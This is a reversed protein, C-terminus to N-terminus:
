ANEIREGELRTRLHDNEQQLHDARSQLEVMQKAQEEQKAEMDQRWYLFQDEISQNTLNSTMIVFDSPGTQQNPVLLAELSPLDSSLPHLWARAFRQHAKKSPPEWLLCWNHDKSNKSDSSRRLMLKSAHVQLVFLFM